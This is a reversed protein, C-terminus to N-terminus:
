TMIELSVLVVVLLVCNVSELKVEDRFDIMRERMPM